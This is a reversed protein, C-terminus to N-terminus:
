PTPSELVGINEMRDLDKKFSDQLSIPIQRVAVAKPEAGEKLTIHYKGELHGIGQFFDSFEGQFHM